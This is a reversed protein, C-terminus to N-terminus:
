TAWRRPELRLTRRDSEEGSMWAVLWTVGTSVIPALVANALARPVLEGFGVLVPAAPTFFSALAALGLAHVATLVAVFLMQAPTGLLNVHLSLLRAAAFVLVGLLAHQGLLGGSFLDVGFGCAAVLLLGTVSSRWSLSLGILVLLALDPRILRPLYPGLAGQLMPVCLVLLLCGLVGRM